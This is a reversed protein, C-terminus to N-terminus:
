KPLHLINSRPALGEASGNWYLLFPSMTGCLVRRELINVPVSTNNTLKEIKGDCSWVHTKCHASGTLKHLLWMITVPIIKTQYQSISLPRRASASEVPLIPM